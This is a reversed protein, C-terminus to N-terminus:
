AGGDKFSCSVAKDTFFSFREVLLQIRLVMLITDNSIYSVIQFVNRFIHYSSSLLETNKFFSETVEFCVSSDMWYSVKDQVWRKM